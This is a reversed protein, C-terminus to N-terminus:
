HYLGKARRTSILRLFFGVMQLVQQQSQNFTPHHVFLRNQSVALLALTTINAEPMARLKSIAQRYYLV